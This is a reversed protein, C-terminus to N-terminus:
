LLRQLFRRLAVGAKGHLAVFKSSSKTTAQKTNLKKKSLRWENSKFHNINGNKSNNYKM